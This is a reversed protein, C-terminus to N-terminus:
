GVTPEEPAAEEAVPGEDYGGGSLAMADMSAQQQSANARVKAVLDAKDEVKFYPAVFNIATEDDILGGSMAGTAATAAKQIDDLSPNFYGPWHLTINGGQGPQLKTAISKGDPGKTYKLPLRVENIVIQGQGNDTPRAMKVATNWMMELLPIICRQGYQERMIDAKSIMSQYLKEVETATKNGEPHELVCQACELVRRRYEDAQEMCAKSAAGSLELYTVSGEPVRIANDSGKQIQGMEAKSSIILTPDANYVLGRHAQATLMDIGRVLDYAYKPCDPNGDTEDQVPLNQIWLVPCFGLNHDIVKATGDEVMADWNPEDETAKAPPYLIDQTMTIVRRYWFVQTEMKGTVEDKVEKPYLYRKDISKLIGSGYETFEPQCWRPDHVEIVPRGEVFQFGVGVSGMAGGYARAMLMQPWLRGAAAIARLFEQSEPDGEVHINPHQGESFLLGTFRDVIVKILPYPATPRRFKLPIKNGAGSMDIFGNPIVAQSAIIDAQTGEVNERGDWDLKHNDYHANQYWAWLSNLEQQRPTLGLRRIREMPNKGVDKGGVGKAVLNFFRGLVGPDSPTTM